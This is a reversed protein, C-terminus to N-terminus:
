SLELVPGVDFRCIRATLTVQAIRCVAAWPPERRAAGDSAGSWAAAHPTAAQEIQLATWPHGRGRRLRSWPMKSRPVAM